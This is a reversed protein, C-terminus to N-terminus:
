LVRTWALPGPSVFPMREGPLSVLVLLVGPVLLMWNAFRTLRAAGWRAYIGGISAGALVYASWPILPFLSGSSPSLYAAFGPRGIQKPDMGWVTPVVAILIVALALSM